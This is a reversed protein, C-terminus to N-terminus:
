VTYYYYIFIVKARHLINGIPLCPQLLYRCIHHRSHLFEFVSGPKLQNKWFVGQLSSEETGNEQIEQAIKKTLKNVSQRGNSLMIKSEVM